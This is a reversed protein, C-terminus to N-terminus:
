VGIRLLRLYDFYDFISQRKPHAQGPTKEGAELGAQKLVAETKETSAHCLLERLAALTTKQKELLETVYGV